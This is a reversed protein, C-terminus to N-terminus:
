TIDRFECVDKERQRKTYQDLWNHIKLITNEEQTKGWNVNIKM